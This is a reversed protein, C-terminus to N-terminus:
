RGHHRGGEAHRRALDAAGIVGAEGGLEAVAIRAAPRFRSQPAIGAAYAQRTPGLLLEGADAVGGGVVFLDPDLAATLVAMGRGLSDGVTVFADRAAPDGRRALETVESGSVTAGDPLGALEGYARLLARGSVYQEWCGRGGCGCPRGDQVVVMHGFEAAFGSHGRLLRGDVVLGGGLGTGVTLCAMAGSGRGAGFVAEGWAACNADNEVVAPRGLRAEVVGALDGPAWDDINPTFVVTRSDARVFGAISLGVAVADGGKLLPEVVALITDTVAAGSPTAVRTLQEVRGDSGVLGAAIKTGGVDV